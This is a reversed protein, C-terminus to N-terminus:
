KSFKFALITLTILGLVILALNLTKNNKTDVKVQQKKTRFLTKYKVKDKSKKYKYEIRTEFRTKPVYQTNYKVVTDTYRYVKEWVITDNKIIPFSDVKLVQITDSTQECKYGKKLAKSLHYQASCSFMLTLMLYSLFCALAFSFIQNYNIKM